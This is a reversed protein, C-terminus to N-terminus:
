SILNVLDGKGNALELFLSALVPGSVRVEMKSEVVRFHVATWGKRPSKNSLNAFAGPTTNLCLSGLNEHLLCCFFM